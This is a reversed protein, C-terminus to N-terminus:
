GLRIRPDLFAQAIDVLLNLTMYTLASVLTIGMIAPYDATIIAKSAYQGLGPWGFVAEILFTATLSYAFTMALVTLVPGLANRLAYFGLIKAERVGYARATRIFDENLIDLITARTMRMALGLPYVSLTIAPLILHLLASKLATFNGTFLADLLYFGTMKQIPDTLSVITDIRGGLPLLELTKAFVLQLIMALWFAPLAIGAISTVRAMHDFLANRKAASTIGLPIGIVLAILMGSLILELSQPLRSLIDKRVPQHTRISTGWDRFIFDTIYRSYQVYIPQDLGLEVRVRAIQDATAHPGVWRAAPDSPLVRALLFTLVSVIFLVVIFLVLRRAVYVGLNM